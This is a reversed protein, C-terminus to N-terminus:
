DILAGVPMAGSAYAIRAATTLVDSRSQVVTFRATALDRQATLLDVINSLGNEYTKLNSEYADRSAELLADAYALKRVAARYDYYARWVEAIADLQRAALAARAQETQARAERLANIRDFGSFVDWRFSFTTSYTPTADKVRASGGVTYDWVTEGYRGIFGITPLFEAKAKEVAAEAARLEAVRAALDPRQALATDILADVERDLEPPPPQESLSQIALPRNAPMGLTLALDAEADKVAVHANELDYIARAEVQKGLLLEPRTALGVRFREEAAALVARALELNRVAAREFAQAADLAYYALQVRYVVDQMTRNFAFNAALLRQRALEASQARRGFDLLTYLLAVTPIYSNQRIVLTEPSDQKLLKENPSVFTDFVVEPYYPKLARGFSAAAARAAEWSARTDPNDRLAVDILTALDQPRDTEPLVRDPRQWADPPARLESAAAPPVWTRHPAAPALPEPDWADRVDPPPRWPACACFACLSGVLLPTLAKSAQRIPTKNEAM